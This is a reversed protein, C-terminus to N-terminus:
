AKKDLGQLSHGTLEELRRLREELVRTNWFAGFALLATAALAFIPWDM